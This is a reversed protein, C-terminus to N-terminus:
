KTEAKSKTDSGLWESILKLAENTIVLKDANLADYVNVYNAQVIKVDSLNNSARLLEVDLNAVVVLTRNQAGIKALLKALEGTKSDKLKLDEIVIIRDDAASLSLAQKIALRKAKVNLSKTYNENGSPGFVIGGGRWIPNRSSGVRARGTGKQRWPKKGGGSVEGRKKTKALNERGNALYAVYASKLLEHNKPTVDFVAKDLKAPTTAKTGSKTFTSVAM